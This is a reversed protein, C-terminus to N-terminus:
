KGDGVGGEGGPRVEVADLRQQILGRDALPRAVWRRLLRAGFGTSTRDLLHLLSGKFSGEVPCPSLPPSPSPLSLCPTPHPSPSPTTLHRPVHPRSHPHGHSAPSRM